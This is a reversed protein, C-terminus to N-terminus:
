WKMRLARILDVRNAAQTKSAAYTCLTVSTGDEGYYIGNSVGAPRAKETPTLGAVDNWNAAAQANWVFACVAVWCILLKRM